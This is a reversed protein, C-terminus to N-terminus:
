DKLHTTLAPVDFTNCARISVPMPPTPPTREAHYARVQAHRAPNCVPM